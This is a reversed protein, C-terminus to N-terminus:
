APSQAATATLRSVSLAKVARAYLDLHAQAVRPWDFRQLGADRGSLSARLADDLALRTLQRAFDTDNRALLATKEHTLFESAGTGAMAVVPLGVARAELLAIGFSERTTPMAFIDARALLDRVGQRSLAGPFTAQESLGCSKIRRTLVDRQPGEGAIQLTLDRGANRAAQRASAFADVLALPRKKPALRMATAVRLPRDNSFSPQPREPWASLNVANPLVHVQTGIAAQAQAAVLSSVASFLVPGERWRWHRAAARLFPVSRLLMSHFTVIAPLDLRRAAILAALALPSIVSAHAHVVDIAGEVLAREVYDVLRPSVSFGFFPARATQLRSVNVKNSFTEKPFARGDPTTTLVCVEIDRASLAEALDSVHTEIGGLRPSFWDSALAVRRVNPEAPSM